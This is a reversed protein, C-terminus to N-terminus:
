DEPHLFCLYIFLFTTIDCTQVHIGESSGPPPPTCSFSAYKRETQQANVEPHTPQIVNAAHCWGLTVCKLDSILASALVASSTVVPNQDTNLREKVDLRLCLVCVCVSDSKQRKTRSVRFSCDVVKYVCVCFLCQWVWDRLGCAPHSQIDHVLHRPQQGGGAQAWESQCRAWTDGGGGGAGPLRPGATGAASLATTRRTAAPSNVRGRFSNWRYLLPSELCM